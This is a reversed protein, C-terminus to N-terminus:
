GNGYFLENLYLRLIKGSPRKPPEDLIHLIDPAKFACVSAICLDRFADPTAKSDETLRM